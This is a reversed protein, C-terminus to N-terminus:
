NYHEKYDSTIVKQEFLEGVTLELIGMGGGRGGPILMKKFFLSAFIARSPCVLQEFAM